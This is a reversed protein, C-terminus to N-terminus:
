LVPEGIMGPLKEIGYHSLVTATLDTLDHGEEALNRNVFLVGPVVEPAMLHNGSWRSENDEKNQLDAASLWKSPYLETLKAM